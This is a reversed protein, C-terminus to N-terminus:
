RHVKHGEHVVLVDGYRMVSVYPSTSLHWYKCIQSVPALCQALLDILALRRSVPPVRQHSRNRPESLVTALIVSKLPARHSAVRHSEESLEVHDPTGHPVVASRCLEVPWPRGDSIRWNTCCLGHSSPVVSRSVQGSPPAVSTPSFNCYPQVGLRADPAAFLLRNPWPLILTSRAIFLVVPAKDASSYSELSRPPRPTGQEHFHGLHM